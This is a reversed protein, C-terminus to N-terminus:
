EKPEKSKPDEWSRADVSGAHVTAGSTGRMLFRMARQHVVTNQVGLSIALYLLVSAATVGIPGHLASVFASLSLHVGVSVLWLGITLWTAQQSLAGRQIPTLRVTLARLAGFVSAGIVFSGIVIASVKAGLSHTETYHLFQFLGILSLVVPVRGAFRLRVRRVRRQRYLVWALAAADIVLDLPSV